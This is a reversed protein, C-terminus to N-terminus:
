RGKGRQSPSLLRQLQDSLLNLSVVTVVIALGPAVAILPNVQLYARGEELMSGWDAAPPQIGLGLFSLAALDLMAYGLDLTLESLLTSLGNPLIHLFLIRAGSFGLSREAEVYPKARESLAISRALRSIMPIYVIGLSVVASRLGRGFGAVFVFALLLSPFSLLIDWLRMVIADIAGGYYGSVLGLPIGVSISILVVVVASMLTTKTGCLLRSFSDRGADDTGLIHASSPGRLSMSLDVRLPDYPAVLPGFSASFLVAALALSPLAM